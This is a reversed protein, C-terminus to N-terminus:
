GGPHPAPALMSRPVCSFTRASSAPVIEERDVGECSVRLRVSAASEEIVFLRAPRTGAPLRLGLVRIAYFANRFSIGRTAAADVWQRTGWTTNVLLRQDDHGVVLVFHDLGWEPHATPLLKVGALVPDGADLAEGVWRAYAKFGVASPRYMSYRVGLADLARPIENSYLDPHAPRGARYILRQPAWMGSYLLAEQIATEGCWGEPPAEPAHRRAPIPLPAPATPPAATLLLLLLSLARPLM